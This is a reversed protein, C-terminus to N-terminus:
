VLLYDHCISLNAFKTALQDVVVDDLEARSVFVECVVAAIAIRPPARPIEASLLLALESLQLLARATRSLSGALALYQPRVTGARRM